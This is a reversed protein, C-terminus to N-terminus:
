VPTNSLPLLCTRYNFMCLGSFFMHKKKKKLCVATQAHILSLFSELFATPHLHVSCFLAAAMLLEHDCCLADSLWNLTQLIWIKLWILLSPIWDSPKSDKPNHQQFHYLDRRRICFADHSLPPRCESVGDKGEDSNAEALWENLLRQTVHESLCLSVDGRVQSLCLSDLFWSSLLAEFSDMLLRTFGWRGGPFVSTYSEPFTNTAKLLWLFTLLLMCSSSLM